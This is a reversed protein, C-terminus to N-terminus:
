YLYLVIISTILKLNYYLSNSISRINKIFWVFLKLFGGCCVTILDNCHCQFSVYHSYIIKNRIFYNLTSWRTQIFLRTQTDLFNLRFRIVLLFTFCKILIYQYITDEMYCVELRTWSNQWLFFSITLLIFYMNRSFKSKINANKKITNSCNIVCDNVCFGM